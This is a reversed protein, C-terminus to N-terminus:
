AMVWLDCNRGSCVDDDDEANELCQGTETVRDTSEPAAIASRHVYVEDSRLQLSAEPVPGPKGFLRILTKAPM